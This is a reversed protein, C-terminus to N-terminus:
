RNISISWLGSKVEKDGRGEEAWLPEKLDELDPLGIDGKTMRQSVAREFSLRTCDFSMQEQSYCRWARVLLDISKNSPSASVDTKFEQHPVIPGGVGALKAILQSQTHYAAHRLRSIKRHASPVVPLNTHPFMAHISPHWLRASCHAAWLPGFHEHISHYSLSRYTLCLDEVRDM